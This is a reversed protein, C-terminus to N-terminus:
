PKVDDFLSNIMEVTKEVLVQGGEPGVQNSQIIASYGGGNVARQTPLYTGPGTLQVVFTQLAKSRGQIQIGFDQFLEFPNTVIVIDGIRLVHIETPYTSNKDQNNFRDIVRGMWGIRVGQEGEKKKLEEVKRKAEEVEEVTVKRVPLDLNQVLHHFIVDTHADNKVLDGVENVERVIRRAMEQTEPIGRLKLMRAEAAKRFIHHPSIDGAAGPWGLVRNKGGLSAGLAERVDHWYDAGIQKKHELIQSPCAVNVCTALPKKEADWFYLLEVGHDEGGEIGRFEPLQTNGYMVASGDAYVARRNMGTVAHGLGWAVSAPRRTEWAQVSVDVLKDALFTAFELPKMVGTEPIDYIGDTFAGSTHTHTATVVLKKVDFHPLRKALKERTEDLVNTGISVLDCSILIAQDTAKGNEVSEIALATATIPSDVGTSIRTHLQGRLAIPQDPTFDIMSVGVHLETALSFWCPAVIMLVLLIRSLTLSFIRTLACCHSDPFYNM